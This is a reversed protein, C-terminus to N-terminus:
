RVIEVFRCEPYRYKFIKRKLRYVQNAETIKSKVDVVVKKGNQMYVFDAVYKIAKQWKGESDRFGDQLVFAVQRQLNTIKGSREMAQLKIFYEAEKRSDFKMDDVVVKSNHYKNASKLGARMLLYNQLANVAAM